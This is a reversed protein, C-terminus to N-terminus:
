IGDREGVCGSERACVGVRRMGTQERERMRVCVCM